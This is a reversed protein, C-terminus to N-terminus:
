SGGGSMADTMYEKMADVETKNKPDGGNWSVAQEVLLKAEKIRHDTDLTPDTAHWAADKVDKMRKEAPSLEPKETHIFYDDQSWLHLGLGVRMACRKVGDSVADKLRAGDTPWNSPRECDGVEQITVTRGDIQYVCELVCGEIGNDGRLIDVIRMDFPGVITLLQETVTSHAVYSGYKGQPAKKVLHDPFPTTLQQLDTM